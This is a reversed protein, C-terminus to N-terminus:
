DGARVAALASGVILAVALVWTFHRGTAWALASGLAPIQGADNLCTQLLLRAGQLLAEAYGHWAQAPIM